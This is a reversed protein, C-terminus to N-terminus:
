NETMSALYPRLINDIPLDAVDPMYSQNSQCFKPLASTETVSALDLSTIMCFVSLCRFFSLLSLSLCLSVSLSLTHSLSRPFNNFYQYWAYVDARVSPM